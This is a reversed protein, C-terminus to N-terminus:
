LTDGKFRLSNQGEQLLQLAPQDSAFVTAYNTQGDEWPATVLVRGERDFIRMYEVGHDSRVVEALNRLADLDSLYIYSALVDNLSSALLHGREGLRAQAAAREHRIDWAVDVVMVLTIVSVLGITLITAIGWRPRLKTLM